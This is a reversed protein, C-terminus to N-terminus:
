LSCHPCHRLCQPLSAYTCLFAAKCAYLWPSPLCTFLSAPLSVSLSAPLSHMCLFYFSQLRTVLSAVCTAFRKTLCTNLCNIVSSALCSISLYHSLYHLLFYSLYCPLGNLSYSRTHSLSRMLFWGMCHFLVFHPLCHMLCLPSAPLLIDPLLLFFSPRTRLFNIIYPVTCSTVCAIQVCDALGGTLLALM